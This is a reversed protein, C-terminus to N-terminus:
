WRPPPQLKRLDARVRRRGADQAGPGGRLRCDCHGQRRVEQLPTPYRLPSRTLRSTHRVRWTQRQFRQTCGLASSSPVRSCCAPPLRRHCRRRAYKVLDAPLPVEPLQTWWVQSYLTSMPGAYAEFYEVGGAENSYDSWKTSFAGPSPNPTKSIVYEGNMNDFARCTGGVALLFVLTAVSLGNM